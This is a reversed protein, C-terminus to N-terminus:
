QPRKFLSYGVGAALIATVTGAALYLLSATAIMGAAPNDALPAELDNIGYCLWFGALALMSTAHVFGAIRSKFVLFIWGSMVLIVSYALALAMKESWHRGFLSLIFPWVSTAFLVSTVKILFGDGNDNSQM